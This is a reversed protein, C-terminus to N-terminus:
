KQLGRVMTKCDCAVCRKWTRTNSSMNETNWDSTSYFPDEISLKTHPFTCWSRTVGTRTQWENDNMECTSVACHVNAVNIEFNNTDVVIPPADATTGFCFSWTQDEKVIWPRVTHRRWRLWLKSPSMCTSPLKKHTCVQCHAVNGPLSLRASIQVSPSLALTMVFRSHDTSPRSLAPLGINHGYIRPTSSETSCNQLDFKEIMQLSGPTTHICCQTAAPTDEDKTTKKKECSTSSLCKSCVTNCCSENWLSQTTEFDLNTQRRFCDSMMYQSNKWIRNISTKGLPTKGIKHKKRNTDKEPHHKKRQAHQKKNHTETRTTRKWIQTKKKWISQKKKWSVLKKKLHASKWSAFRKKLRANKWIRTKKLLTKESKKPLRKNKKILHTNTEHTIKKDFIYPKLSTHNRLHTKKKKSRTIKTLVSKKKPRTRMKGHTQWKRLTNNWKRM